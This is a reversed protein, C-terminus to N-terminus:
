NEFEKSFHRLQRETIALKRVEEAFKRRPYWGAKLAKANSMASDQIEGEIRSLYEIVPSADLALCLETHLEKLSTQNGSSVNYIGFLSKELALISFEIVDDVHVYDRTSSGDGYFKCPQGELISNIFLPIVGKTQGNGYVNSLRLSTLRTEPLLNELYTEGMLKSLGYPSIPKPIESESHETSIQSDYIAGGSNFYVVHVDTQSIAWKGINITGLINISADNLPDKIANRVDTQAALHFVHTPQFRDLENNLASSDTVDIAHLGTAKSAADIKLVEVGESELRRSLNKGIFGESGTVAVRLKSSFVGQTYGADTVVRSKQVSKVPHGYM